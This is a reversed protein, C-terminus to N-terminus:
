EVVRTVRYAQVHRDAGLLVGWQAVEDFVGLRRVGLAGHDRAQQLVVQAPDERRQVVALLLDDPQAVAQVVALGAREVLDALVEPQGALADALDLALDHRLEALALARVPEAGVGASVERGFPAPANRVWGKRIGAVLLEATRPDTM